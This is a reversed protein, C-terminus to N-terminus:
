DNETTTRWRRLDEPRDVDWILTLLSWNFKLLNFRSCTEACVRHTSWTINEFVAADARSLGILGYGGDEAPGLVADHNLLKTMADDLYPADIAPCDTGIIVSRCREAEASQSAKLMREGLDHGEQVRLTLKGDFERFFPHESDPSCWLEIPALEAELAM